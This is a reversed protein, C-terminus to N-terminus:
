RLQSGIGATGLYRRRTIRRLALAAAGLILVFGLLVGGPSDDSNAYVAFASGLAALAAITLAFLLDSLSFIPCM